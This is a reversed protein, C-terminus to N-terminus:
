VKDDLKRRPRFSIDAGCHKCLEKKKACKLCLVDTCTSGYMQPEGCWGCPQETMSAGGIWSSLYWCGICLSKELRQKKDPDSLVKLARAVTDDCYQKSFDTARMMSVQDIKVANRKM